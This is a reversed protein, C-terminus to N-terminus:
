YERQAVEWRGHEAGDVARCDAAAAGVGQGAVHHDGRPAGVEEQGEGPESQDGIAASGPQKGRSTPRARVPVM